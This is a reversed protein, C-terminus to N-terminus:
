INRRRRLGQWGAEAQRSKIIEPEPELPRRRSLRNPQKIQDLTQYFKSSTKLGSKTRRGGFVPAPYAVLGQLLDKKM